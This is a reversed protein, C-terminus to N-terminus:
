APTRQSKPTWWVFFAAVLVIAAGIIQWRGLREHLIVYGLIVSVIPILYTVLAGLQQGVARFVDYQFTYAIGTGVIGLIGMAGLAQWAPGIPEPIPSWPMPHASRNLAWWVLMVVLMQASAVTLLTAPQALGGLDSSSLHKRVYTWGLGYCSGALLTMGFGLLDPQGVSDWPQAIIAVGIFGVIVAVVKRAPMREHPILIMTAIVTALPTTAKGIGALASSVRSEGLPFLTFPLTALFLSVVGFHLWIRRDRPLRAGSFRLLILITITGLWIRAASVQIPDLWRLGVKMFLFSAGWILSLAAFKFQWPVRTPHPSSM